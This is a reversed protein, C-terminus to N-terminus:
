WSPPPAWRDLAERLLARVDSVHEGALVLDGRAACDLYLRGVGDRLGREALPPEAPFVAFSDLKGTSPWFAAAASMAATAGLDLGLAYPGAPEANGEVREWTGAELLVSELVDATGQNLRLARFAALASPDAKARRAERRIAAELDPLHDLGPNARKWTSRQLPPANDPAAHVQAYGVGGELMKAFPHEPAAPRTGIWLARAGEIKGRSSELAAIMADIREAPWQALEDALILSPAIGHARRPDSGIVRVMAGTLKDTVTARNPSDQVRWRRPEADLKPRMFALLFRFPILAQDFSSAVLVSEAMPAALPGDLAACLLAACYTTKGNGRAVSLAADDPQGFAGRIFRKEWPLLRFPEGAHRGQVLELGEVYRELLVPLPQTHAHAGM